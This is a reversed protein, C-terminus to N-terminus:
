WTGKTIEYISVNIKGMDDLIEDYLSNIDNILLIVIMTCTLIIGVSVGAAATIVALKVTM